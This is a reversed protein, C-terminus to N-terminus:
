RSSTPESKETSGNYPHPDAKENEAITRWRLVSEWFLLTYAIPGFGSDISKLWLHAYQNIESPKALPRGSTDSAEVIAQFEQFYTSLRDKSELLEKEAAPLGAEVADLYREAMKLSVMSFKHLATVKQAWEEIRRRFCCSKMEAVDLFAHTLEELENIDTTAGSIRSEVSQLNTQVTGLRESM